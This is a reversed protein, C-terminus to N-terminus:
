QKHGFLTCICQLKVFYTFIRLQLHPAQGKLGTATLSFFVISLLPIQGFRDAVTRKVSTNGGGHLVLSRDRGLLHSTYLRLALDEGAAEGHTALYERAEDDRFQNQVM